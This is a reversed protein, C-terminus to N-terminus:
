PRISIPMMPHGGRETLTKKSKKTVSPQENKEKISAYPDTTTLNCFAGLSSDVLHYGLSLGSFTVATEGEKVTLSTGSITNDAAYALADKALQAKDAAELTVGSKLSLYGGDEDIQFYDSKGTFFAEWAEIPKYSYFGSEKDYSELSAMQYVTYTTGSASENITISGTTDAFAPICLSLALMVTCLITFVRKMM